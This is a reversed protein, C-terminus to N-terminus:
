DNAWGAKIAYALINIFDELSLFAFPQSNNRKMVVLPTRRASSRDRLAQNYYAIPSWAEQNKCEIHLPLKTLVDGDGQQFGGSMFSRRATLDLGSNILADRVIYELSAGKIKRGKASVSMQVM